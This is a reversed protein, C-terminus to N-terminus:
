GRARRRTRLALGALALGLASLALGAPEPVDTSGNGTTLVLDDLNLIHNPNDPLISFGFIPLASSVGLQGRLFTSGAHPNVLRDTAIVQGNIDFATLTADWYTYIGISIATVPMSLTAIPNTSSIFHNRPDGNYFSAQLLSGQTFILGLASFKTDLQQIFTNPMAVDDATGLVGDVGPTHEFDITVVGASAPLVALSCLAFFLASLHKKM